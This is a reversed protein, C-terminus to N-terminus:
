CRTPNFEALQEEASGEEGDTQPPPVTPADPLKPAHASNRCFFFMLFFGLYINRCHFLLEAWCNGEVAASM